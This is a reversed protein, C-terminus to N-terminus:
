MCARSPLQQTSITRDERVPACIWALFLLRLACRLLFLDSFRAQLSVTSSDDDEASAASAHLFTRESKCLIM